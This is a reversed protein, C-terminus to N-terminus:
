ETEVFVYEHQADRLTLTRTDDQMGIVFTFGTLGPSTTVLSVTGDDNKRSAVPSQWEGMDLWTQDAKFVVEVSGLSDNADQPALADEAVESPITLREREKLVASRMNKASTAVSEQAEPAGDFLIELLRRQFPGLLGVGEDSNTVIVAAVDHGECQEM